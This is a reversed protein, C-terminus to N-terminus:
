YGVEVWADLPIETSKEALPAFLDSKTKSMDERDITVTLRTIRDKIGEGDDKTIRSYWYADEAKEKIDFRDILFNNDGLFPLGYKRDTEGKIGRRLKGEFDADCDVAICADIDSLFTRRVPTINYKNGKTEDAREKGTDGVPYNHLQQYISQIQPYEVAGIAMKIKPLGTKIKTMPLDDSYKRMEVCAFNLLLGYAASFTVFDATPRFSGATM